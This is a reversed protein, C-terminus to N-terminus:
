TILEVFLSVLVTTPDGLVISVITGIFVKLIRWYKNGKGGKGRGRAKIAKLNLKQLALQQDQNANNANIWNGGNKHWEELAMEIVCAVHVHYEGCESIYSWGNTQGHPNITRKKCWMCKGKVKKYLNFEVDEIKYNRNLNRCCPHLDLEVKVKKCHYMFGNIPKTCADCFKKCDDCCARPPTKFFEFASQPFFEHFIPSDQPFMCAKHLDFNCKECRYRPGFGIEKCGDCTYPKLYEKLELEHKLQNPTCLQNPM